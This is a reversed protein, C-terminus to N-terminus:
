KIVEYTLGESEIYQQLDDISKFTQVWYVNYSVQRTLTKMDAYKFQMATFTAVSSTPLTGGTAWKQTSLDYIFVHSGDSCKYDHLWKNNNGDLGGKYSAGNCTGSADLTINRGTVGEYLDKVDDMRVAFIPYKGAHLWTKASWCKFDARQNTANQTYTNITLKGYSWTHSTSTGNGTQKADYWNYNNEDHYLERVLGEELRLAVSSSNGTAPCTATITVDGFTGNQNFTVVGGNVTAIQDNSTEWTILSATCNAPVTTYNLQLTKESIACLYGNDVAYEQGITVEEPTVIQRVTIDKTAVVQSGDLASATITVSAQEAGNVLGTVLGKNDVTAVTEDSSSWKVTQYTATAPLVSATLQLTEGSYVEDAPAQITVSQAPVLENAVVVKLTGYIGSGAYFAAPAVQIISYGRGNGSLATVTGNSEVTAVSEDSSTWNVENFTVDEPVMAYGLTASTGKLLPLVAAGSEDTYVLQELEGPLTLQVASPYVAQTLPEVTDEDNCSALSAVSMWLALCRVGYNYIQKM